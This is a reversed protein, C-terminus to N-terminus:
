SSMESYQQQGSCCRPLHLLILTLNLVHAEGVKMCSTSGSGDTLPKGGLHQRHKMYDGVLSEADEQSFFNNLFEGPSLM